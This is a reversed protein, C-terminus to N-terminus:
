KRKTIYYVFHSEDPHAEVLEHGAISIFSSFDRVSGADTALVKVCEGVAMKNLQMKARLLPMPCSEESADVIYDFQM